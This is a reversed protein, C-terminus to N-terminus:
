HCRPGAPGCTYPFRPFGRSVVSLAPAVHKFVWNTCQGFVYFVVPNM